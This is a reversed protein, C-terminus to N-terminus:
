RNEMPTPSPASTPSTVVSPPFVTGYAANTAGASSAEDAIFPAM